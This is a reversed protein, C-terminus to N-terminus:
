RRPRFGSQFVQTTLTDGQGNMPLQSIGKNLYGGGAAATPSPLPQLNDNPRFVPANGFDEPNIRKMLPEAGSDTSYPQSSQYPQYPNRMPAGTYPNRPNTNPPPAPELDEGGPVYNPHGPPFPVGGPLTTPYM